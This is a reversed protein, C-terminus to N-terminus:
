HLRGLAQNHVDACSLVVNFACVTHKTSSDGCSGASIRFHRMLANPRAEVVELDFYIM